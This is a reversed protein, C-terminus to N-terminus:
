CSGIKYTFLVIGLAYFTVKAGTPIFSGCSEFCAKVEGSPLPIGYPIDVCYRGLVPLEFCIQNGQVSAKVCGSLNLALVDSGVQSNLQTSQLQPVSFGLTSFDPVADDNQKINPKNCDCM